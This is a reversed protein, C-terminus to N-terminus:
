NGFREQEDDEALSNPGYRNSGRDSPWVSVLGLFAAIILRMDDYNLVIGFLEAINPVITLLLWWGSRNIDHLRRVSVALGPLILLFLLFILPFTPIRFTPISNHAEVDSPPQVALGIIIMAIFCIAIFIITVISLFLM